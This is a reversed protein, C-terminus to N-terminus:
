CESGDFKHNRALSVILDEVINIDNQSKKLAFLCEIAYASLGLLESMMYESQKSDTSTCGLLYDTSVDFIVAIDCLSKATVTRLGREYRNLTQGLIGIMEALKCCSMNNAERLMKIRKGVAANDFKGIRKVDFM